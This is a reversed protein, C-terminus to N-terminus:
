YVESLASDSKFHPFNISNFVNLIEPQWCVSLIYIFVFSAFFTKVEESGGLLGLKDYSPPPPSFFFSFVRLLWKFLLKYLKEHWSSKQLIMLYILKCVISFASDLLNEGKGLNKQSGM